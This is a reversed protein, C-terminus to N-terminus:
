VGIRKKEREKSIRRMKSGKHRQYINVLNARFILFSLSSYIRLGPLKSLLTNLGQWNAYKRYLEM